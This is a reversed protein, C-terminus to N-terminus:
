GFANKGNNSYPLIQRLTMDKPDSASKSLYSLPRPSPDLIFCFAFATIFM